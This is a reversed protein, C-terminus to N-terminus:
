HNFSKKEQGRHYVLKAQYVSSSSQSGGSNPTLTWTSGPVIGTSLEACRQRHQREREVYTQILTQMQYERNEDFVLTSNSRTYYPHIQQQQVPASPTRVTTTTGICSILYVFNM